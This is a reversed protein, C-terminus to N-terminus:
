QSLPRIYTTKRSHMNEKFATNIAIVTGSMDSKIANTPAMALLASPRTMGGSKSVIQKQSVLFFKSQNRGHGNQIPFFTKMRNTPRM